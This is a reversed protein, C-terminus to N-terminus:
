IWVINKESSSDENNKVEFRSPTGHAPRRASSGVRGSSGSSGRIKQADSVRYRFSVLFFVKRAVSYRGKSIGADDLM